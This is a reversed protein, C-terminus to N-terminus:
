GLLRGEGEINGSFGESIAQVYSRLVSFKLLGLLSRIIPVRAVIHPNPLGHMCLPCSDIMM